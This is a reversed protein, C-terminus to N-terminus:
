TDYGLSTRRLPISLILHIPSANYSLIIVQGVQKLVDWLVPGYNVPQNNANAKPNTLQVMPSTQSPVYTSSDMSNGGIRLRLPQDVTRERLATLYNIVASPISSTDNGVLSEDVFARQLGWTYLSM